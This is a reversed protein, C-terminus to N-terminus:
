YLTVMPAVTLLSSRSFRRDSGGSPAVSTGAGGCIGFHCDPQHIRRVPGITADSRDVDPQDIRYANGAHWLRQGARNGYGGPDVSPTAAYATMGGLTASVAPRRGSPLQGPASFNDPRAPSPTLSARSVGPWPFAMNDPRAPSPVPDTRSLPVLGVDLTKIGGYEVMEKFWGPANPM